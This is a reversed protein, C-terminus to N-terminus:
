LLDLDMDAHHGVPHDGRKTTRANLEDWANKYAKVIEKVKIQYFQEYNGNRNINLATGTFNGAGQFLAKDDAVIFKNHFLHPVGSFEPITDANTEMFKVEINHQSRLYRYAKIDHSAVDSAPGGNVVGTRLTDDDMLVKVKVGKSAAKGLVSRYIAGTTLRHIAVRLSKTAKKAVSQMAYYPTYKKETAPVMYFYIDNRMKAKITKKCRAYSKAYKDRSDVAGDTKISKFAEFVCVNQQALNKDSSQGYFMWNEFHMALGNSSMNASSSTFNTRQTKAAAKESANMNAITKLNKTESTLFIKAHQLHSGPLGFASGFGSVSINKLAKVSCNDEFWEQLSPSKSQDLYITVKLDKSEANKCLAKRITKNSFSFYALYVSKVKEDEMWSILKDQIGSKKAAVQQDSQLCWAGKKRGEHECDPMNFRAEWTLDKSVGSAYPESAAFALNVSTLTTFASLALTMFKRSNIM